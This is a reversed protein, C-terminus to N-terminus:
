QFTPRLVGEDFDDAPLVTKPIVRAHAQGQEGKASAIEGTSHRWRGGAAVLLVCSRVLGEPRYRRVQRTPSRTRDSRPGEARSPTNRTASRYKGAKQQLLEYAVHAMSGIGAQGISLKGPSAKAYDIMSQFSNVPADVGAVLAVPSKIVLVVPVLDRSPDYPL